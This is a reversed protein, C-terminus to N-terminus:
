DAVPACDYRAETRLLLVRRAGVLDWEERRVPRGAADYTSLHETHTYSAGGAGSTQSQVDTRVSRGAADYDFVEVLSSTHAGLTRESSRRRLLGAADYQATGVTRAGAQLDDEQWDLLLGRADYHRTWATRARADHFTETRAGEPAYACSWDSLRATGGEPLLADSVVTLARGAADYSRRERAGAAGGSPLTEVQLLRGEADYRYETTATAEGLAETVKLLQGQADYESHTTRTLPQVSGPGAETHQEEVVRGAADYSLLALSLRGDASTWTETRLLHGQADYDSHQTERGQGGLPTRFTRTIDTLRGAADYTFRASRPVPGQEEVRLLRGCADLTRREASALAGAADFAELSLLRGAADFRRETRARVRGDGEYVGEECALSAALAPESAAAAAGGECAEPRPGADPPEQVPPVQEQPTAPPAPAAGPAAAGCGAVLLALLVRQLGSVGRARGGM